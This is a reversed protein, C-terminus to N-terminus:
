SLNELIVFKYGLDAAMCFGEYKDFEDKPRSYYFAQPNNDVWKLYDDYNFYKYDDCPYKLEEVEEIELVKPGVPIHKSIYTLMNQINSESYTDMENYNFTSLPHYAKDIRKILELLQYSISPLQNPTSPNIQM